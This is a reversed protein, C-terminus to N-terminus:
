TALDPREDPIHHPIAFWQVIPDIVQDLSQAAGVPEPDDRQVTNRQDRRFEVRDHDHLRRQLERFPLFQRQILVQQVAPWIM